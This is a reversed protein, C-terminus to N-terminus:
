RELFGRIKASLIEMDSAVVEAEAEDDSARDTLTLVLDGDADATLIAYKRGYIFTIVAEGSRTVATRWDYKVLDIRLSTFVMTASALALPAIPESVPRGMVESPSGWQVTQILPVSSTGIQDCQGSLVPVTGSSVQHNM